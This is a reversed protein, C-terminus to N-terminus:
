GPPASTVNTEFARGQPTVFYALYDVTGSAAALEQTVTDPAVYTGQGATLRM